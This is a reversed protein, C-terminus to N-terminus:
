ITGGDRTTLDLSQLRSVALQFDRIAELESIRRDLQNHILDYKRANDIAIAAQEAIIELLDCHKQKYVGEQEFNQLGIVGLVRDGLKM